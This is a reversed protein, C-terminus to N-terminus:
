RGKTAVRIDTTKFFVGTRKNEEDSYYGFKGTVKLSCGSPLHSVGDYDFNAPTILVGDKHMLKIRATGNYIFFYQRKDGCVNGLVTEIARFNELQDIPLSITLVFHTENQVLSILNANFVVNLEGFNDYVYSGFEVSGNKAKQAPTLHWQDHELDKLNMKFPYKKTFDTGKICILSM